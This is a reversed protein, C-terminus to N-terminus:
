AGTKKEIILLPTQENANGWPNSRFVERVQEKDVGDSCAVIDVNGLDNADVVVAEIGLERRIREVVARPSAPGLVIHKDFPPLTGTVDDILRAQSGAFRYFDGRRRLFLRALGGLLFAAIVRLSGEENMLVQFAYPSSMSGSQSVLRSMLHAALSPRVQEPRLLRGQTVALATESIAVVTGKTLYKGAFRSIVEVIDDNPKLIGTRICRCYQGRPATPRSAGGPSRRSGSKPDKHMM